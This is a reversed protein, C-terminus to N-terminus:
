PLAPNKVWQALGPILGAVEDNRTLNMELTGLRSSRQVIQEKIGNDWQDSQANATGEKQSVNILLRNLSFFPASLTMILILTKVEENGEM